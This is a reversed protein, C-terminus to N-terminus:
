SPSCSGQLMWPWIACSLIPLLLRESWSGSWSTGKLWFSSLKLLFSWSSLLMSAKNDEEITCLSSAFNHARVAPSIMLRGWRHFGPRQCSPTNAPSWGWAPLVPLLGQTGFGPCRLVFAKRPAKWPCITVAILVAISFRRNAPMPAWYVGSFLRSSCRPWRPWHPLGCCLNFLPFDQADNM